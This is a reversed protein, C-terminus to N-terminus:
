FRISPVKGTMQPSYNAEPLGAQFSTTGNLGTPIPPGVSAFERVTNVSASGGATGAIGIFTVGSSPGTLAKVLQDEKDDVVDGNLYAQGGIIPGISIPYSLGFTPGGSVYWNGFKDRRIVVQGGIFFDTSLSIHFGLFPPQRSVGSTTGNSPAGATQSVRGGLVSQAGTGHTGGGAQSQWLFGRQSVLEAPLRYLTGDPRHLINNKDVYPQNKNPRKKDKDDQDEALLGSPDTFRLPNNLTYCYRNWGQPDYIDGSPIWPDASAFRGQQNGYYRANAFDLSTESDREYSTFQQRVRDVAGPGVPYGQTTLRGGAGSQNPPGGYLEEGFPLYDHRTMGSVYNGNQNTVTLSGSQDFIMRPTGLQDAVLWHIQPAGGGPADNSYTAGNYLSGTNGYGSLDVLTQGDFRWLGKTSSLLTLPTQPTFNTNYLAAASIRVEDIL